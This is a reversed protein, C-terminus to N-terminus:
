TTYLLLRVSYRGKKTQYSTGAYIFKGLGRVSVVDNEKLNYSNSLACKSNVFVKGGAILGTLSSRSQHFALSLISDLRISSVTGVMEKLTPTYNFDKKEIVSATVMTHKVKVLQDTIFEQITDRCFLYGENNIILIDGLTSRELGLNLVAGLFDRHSLTDSFKSNVPTIKICAIPFTIDEGQEFTEDGCFCLIKREAEQFGGYAFYKIRPLEQKMSNLLNQENLNLFDSFLCCGRRMAANALDLFRRQLILEEKDMNM